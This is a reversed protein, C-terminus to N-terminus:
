CRPTTTIALFLDHFSGCRSRRFVENQELMREQSDVQANSDRVLRALHLDAARDLQQDSRVMRDLWWCHDEGWVDEPDLPNGEEDVPAPGSLKPPARVARTSASSSRNSRSASSRRPRARPRASARAGSAPPQAQAFTIPPSGVAPVPAPSPAPPPPRRRAAGRPLTGLPAAPHALPKHHKHKRRRKKHTSARAHRAQRSREPRGHEHGQKVTHKVAEPRPHAKAEPHKTPVATDNMAWPATRARPRVHTHADRSRMPARCGPVTRRAGIAFPRALRRARELM